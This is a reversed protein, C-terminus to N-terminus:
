ASALKTLIYLAYFAVLAVAEPRQLGRKRLFFILVLSSLVFLTPLDFFLLGREFAVPAIAAALGVPLLTDLINSGILNGVSM